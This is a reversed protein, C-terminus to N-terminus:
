LQPVVRGKEGEGERGRKGETVIVDICLIREGEGGRLTTLAIFYTGEGGEGEEGQVQSLKNQVSM